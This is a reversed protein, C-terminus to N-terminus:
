ETDEFYAGLLKAGSGVDDDDDDDDDDNGPMRQVRTSQKIWISAGRPYLRKLEAAVYAQLWFFIESIVFVEYDIM